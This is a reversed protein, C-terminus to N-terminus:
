FKLLFKLVEISAIKDEPFIMSGTVKLSDNPLLTTNIEFHDLSNFLHKSHQVVPLLLAVKAIIGDGKINLVSAPYGKISFLVDGQKEHFDPTPNIGVHIENSDIQHYYYTIGEIEYSDKGSSFAFHNFPHVEKNLDVKEDFRFIGDFEPLIFLSGKINTIKLGYIILQQSAISPLNVSVSELLKKLYNNLTDSLGGMNIELFDKTSPSALFHHHEKKEILLPNTTGIGEIHVKNDDIFIELDMNQTLGSARGDFFAHFLSKPHSKSLAIRTLNPNNNKVVLDKAYFEFLQRQEDNLSEPIIIISGVGENYAKIYNPENKVFTAFTAPDEVEFIFGIIHYSRWDEYFVIIDKDIAIGTNPPKIKNARYNLQKIDKNKLKGKYLFDFFFRHILNNNNIKLTLSAGSPIHHHLTSEPKVAVFNLIFTIVFCIMVILVGLVIKGKKSNM